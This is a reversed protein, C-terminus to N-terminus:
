GKGAARSVARRLCFEGLLIQVICLLAYSATTAEAAGVFGRDPIWAFNLAVNLAAGLGFVAFNIKEQHFVLLLNGSSIATFIMVSAWVLVRLAPAASEFQPGFLIRLILPAAFTMVLGALIGAAALGLTAKRYLRALAGPNEVSFRAMLPYVSGMVMVPLSELLNTLRYCVGYLGVEALGRMKELMLFDCRNLVAVLLATGGQFFSAKFIPPLIAYHFSFPIRMWKRSTLNLLATYFVEGALLTWVIGSFSCKMSVAALLFATGSLKAIIGIVSPTMFDLKVQFIMGPFQFALVPLILSYILLGSRLEATFGAFFIIGWSMATLALSLFFKFTFLTGMIDAAKEPYKSVERVAIATVGFDNLTQFFYFFAFLYSYQGYGEVGLYRALVYQIVLSTALVVGQGAMQFATNRVILKAVPRSEM